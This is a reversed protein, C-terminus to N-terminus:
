LAKLNLNFAVGNFTNNKWKGNIINFYFFFM